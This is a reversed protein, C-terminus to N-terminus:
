FAFNHAGRLPTLGERRGPQEHRRRSRRLDFTKRGPVMSTGYGRQRVDGAVLNFGKVVGHPGNRGADDLLGWHGVRGVRTRGRDQREPVDGLGEARDTREPVDGQLQEGALHVGEGALVAGSLRGEDLRQGSHVPRVGALHQEVACRDDEVAGAVGAVGADGHDVLLGGEEGVQRDGLVDEHAALRAAGEAADVVLGGVGGGGCQHQAEADFEVGVPGGAAQGDRVLLDDLDGLREGEVGPDQDHVLRGGGEGAALHGAEEAHHAGQAFLAGRHQEDGVAQLLDEADALPDGGQAVAGPDGALEQRAHGLVVQHAAHDAAVEVLQVGFLLDGRALGGQAHAPQGALADEGVDGELHPAALDDRQGSQHPAPRM